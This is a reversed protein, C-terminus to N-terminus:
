SRVDTQVHPGRWPAPVQRLLRRRSSRLPVPCLVPLREKKAAEVGGYTRKVLGLTQMKNLDRNITASSYHLTDVLYRVTVYGRKELIDRIQDHRLKQSM